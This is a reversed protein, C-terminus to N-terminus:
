PSSLRIKGEKQKYLMYYHPGDINSQGQEDPKGLVQKIEDFSKGLYDFVPDEVNLGAPKELDEAKQTSSNEPDKIYECGEAAIISETKEAAKVLDEGAMSQNADAPKIAVIAGFPLETATRGQGFRPMEAKIGTGNNPWTTFRKASEPEENELGAIIIALSLVLVALIKIQLSKFTLKLSKWGPKM